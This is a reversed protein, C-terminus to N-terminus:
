AHRGAVKLVAFVDALDFGSDDRALEAFGNEKLVEWLATPFEGSEALDLLPKDCHDSFIREASDILIQQTSM